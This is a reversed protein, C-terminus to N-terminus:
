ESNSYRSYWDHISCPCVHMVEPLRVRLQTRGAKLIGCLEVAGEYGVQVRVPTPIMSAIVAYSNWYVIGIHTHTHTHTQTHTHTYKYTRVYICVYMGVNVYLLLAAM